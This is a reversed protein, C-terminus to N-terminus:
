RPMREDKSSSGSTRDYHRAQRARHACGEHCFGRKHHVQLFFIPCPTRSCRRVLTLNPGGLFDICRTALTAVFADIGRGVHGLVASPNGSGCHLQLHSPVSRAARKVTTVAKSPFVAKPDTAVM